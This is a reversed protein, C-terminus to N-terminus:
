SSVAATTADSLVNDQKLQQKHGVVSFLYLVHSLWTIIIEQLLLREERARDKASVWNADRRTVICSAKTQKSM